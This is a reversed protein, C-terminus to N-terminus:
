GAAPPTTITHRRPLATTLPCIGVDVRQRSMFRSQKRRRDTYNLSLVGAQGSTAVVPSACVMPCAVATRVYPLMPPFQGLPTELNSVRSRYGALWGLDAGPPVDVSSTVAPLSRCM